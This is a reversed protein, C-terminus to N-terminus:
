GGSVPPIVAIEDGPHLLDGAELYTECRTLRSSKRLTALGPLAAVLREWFETAPIPAAVKLEYEACGAALRSQAFFLVKM